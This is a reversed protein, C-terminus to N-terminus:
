RRMSWGGNIEGIFPNNAGVGSASSDHLLLRLISVDGLDGAACRRHVEAYIPNFRLIHGVLTKRRVRPLPTMRVLNAITNAM